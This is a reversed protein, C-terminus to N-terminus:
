VVLGREKHPLCKATQRRLRHCYDRAKSTPVDPQRRSRGALAAYLKAVRHSVDFMWWDESRKAEALCGVDLIWNLHRPRSVYDPPALTRALRLRHFQKEFGARRYDRGVLFALALKTYRRAQPEILDACLASV